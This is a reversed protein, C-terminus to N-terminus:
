AVLRVHDVNSDEMQVDVILYVHKDSFRAHVLGAWVNIPQSLLVRSRHDIAEIGIVM